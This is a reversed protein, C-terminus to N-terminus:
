SLTAKTVVFDETSRKATDQISGSQRQDGMYVIQAVVCSVYIRDHENLNGQVTYINQNAEYNTSNIIANPNGVEYSEYWRYYLDNTTKNDMEVTAKLQVQNNVVGHKSITVSKPTQARNKVIFSNSNVEKSVNNHTNIVQIYYEGTMDDDDELNDDIPTYQYTFTSKHSADEETHVLDYSTADNKNQRMVNYTLKGEDSRQVENLGRSIDLSVTFSGDNYYQTEMLEKNDIKIDSPNPIFCTNSDIWRIKGEQYENGISVRYAGPTTPTYTPTGEAVVTNDVNWSNYWKYKLERDNAIPTAQVELSEGNEINMNSPLNKLISAQPGAVNNFIGSFRPRSYTTDTTDEVLNNVGINNNSFQDFLNKAISCTVEQTNLSFLAPRDLDPSSNNEPNLFERYEFRVAFSLDGSAQLVNSSVEWGFYIKEETIEVWQVPDLGGMGLSDRKGIKWQVYTQGHYDWYPSNNEDEIQRPFCIALDIADYFRDVEFFLIEAKHDDKVGIIWKKADDFNSPAQIERTDPLIIFRKEDLPIRMFEPSIKELESLYSFYSALTTIETENGRFLNQELLNETAKKFLANYDQSNSDYVVKM